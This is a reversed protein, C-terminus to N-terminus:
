IPATTNTRLVEAIQPRIEGADPYKESLHLLVGLAEDFKGNGLTQAVKQLVRTVEGDLEGLHAVTQQIVRRGVRVSRM